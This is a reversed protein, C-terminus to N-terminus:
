RILSVRGIHQHFSNEVNDKFIIKYNYVDIKCLNNKYTGDWGQNLDTTEFIKTGWRDFVSFTYDHVGFVAPKFTDNLNNKDPTFANAVWFAFDSQVEVDAFATDRCGIENEVVQMITYYGVAAYHHSSDCNQSFSGDGWYVSCNNAFVSQDTISLKSDFASLITNSLSFGAIPSPKVDLSNPFNYSDTCANETTVLLSVNYLGAQAYETTPNSLTSNIGDGFDWLYTLPTDSNSSDIFVVPNLVCLTDSSVGFLAEPQSYVIVSDVYTKTCGNESVSFVIFHNGSQQFVVNTPNIAISSDPTALTGFHWVFSAGSSFSGVAQFDFSNGLFCQGQPPSFSPNLLPYILFNSTATDVCLTGKNIILTVSYMGSDAYTWTPNQLNSTDNNVSTDGFDWNYTFANSSNSTFNVTYGNCFQTQQPISASPLNPCNVVNFQFDRKNVDILVGNRYESVCVGVVWQGVMNPTATILGTQPNITLAPSASLPYSANYPALWPVFAFPPPAGLQPCPSSAQIGLIPCSPDLGTFPDCLEYHLSDGDSDIASHDFTFPIGECLFIPPFNVFHPSSNDTAVSPEPIHAMYTSGVDGPSVINLISNNRCCRQYTLNYGGVIPPLTVVAQYVAEEVCVDTPPTFCPNNVSSPLVVSGPFAIQISDVLTGSSNFVFITAPDDYLALGAYCDRYLKLTIRYNDNGLYDYFIEGGVIHTANSKISLFLFFILWLRITKM